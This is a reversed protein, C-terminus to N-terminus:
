LTRPKRRSGALRGRHWRGRGKRIRGAQGDHEDRARPLADAAQPAPSRISRRRKWRSPWCAKRVRRRSQRRPRASRPTPPGARVPSSQQKGGETGGCRGGGAGSGSRRIRLPARLPLEDRRRSARTRHHRLVAAARGARDPRGVNRQAAAQLRMRVTRRCRPRRVTSRRRVRRHRRDPGRARLHRAGHPLLALRRVAQVSRDAEAAARHRRGSRSHLRDARRGCSIGKQRRAERILAAPVFVSSAATDKDDRISTM